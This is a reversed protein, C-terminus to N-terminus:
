SLIGFAQDILNHLSSPLDPGGLMSQLRDFLDNQTDYYGLRASASVFERTLFQDVIQRIEGIEVGASAGAISRSRFTVEERAFGPTNVNSINNSTTRLATQNANLGSLASRMISDISM